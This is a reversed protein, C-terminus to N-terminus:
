RSPTAPKQRLPGNGLAQALAQRQDLPLTAAFTVVTTEIRGRLTADAVQARQLQASVAASNFQPQVFLKAAEARADQAERTVDLSGRVTQRVARRFAQAQDAPLARAARARWGTRTGAGQHHWRWVGGAIAGVLFINLVVSVILLTAQWRRM